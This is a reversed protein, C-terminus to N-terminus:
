IVRPRASRGIQTRGRMAQYVALGFLGFGFLVKSSPEPVEDNAQVDFAYQFPSTSDSSYPRLFEISLTHPGSAVLQSYTITSAAIQGSDVPGFSYGAVPQSDLLLNVQGGALNFSTGGQVGIGASIDLLGGSATFTQSIGAGEWDNAMSSLQGADFQVANVPSDGPPTFSTVTPEGVGATGNPTTFVTWGTLGANFNGNSIIDNSLAPGCLLIGAAILKLTASELSM